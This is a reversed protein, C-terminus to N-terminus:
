FCLICKLLRKNYKYKALTECIKKGRRSEAYVYIDERGYWCEDIRFNDRVGSQQTLDQPDWPVGVPTCVAIRYKLVFVHMKSVTAM